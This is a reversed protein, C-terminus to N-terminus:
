DHQVAERLRHQKPAADSAQAAGLFAALGVVALIPFLLCLLYKSILWLYVPPMWLLVLAIVLAVRLIPKERPPFHALVLLLALMLPSLDHSFVHFGTVLSVVLAAAFMLDSTNKAKTGDLQDVQRWRWGIGAILFLSLAGVIVDVATPSLMHGLLLQVFGNLTAMGTAKGLPLNNPHGAIQVLLHIYSLIGRWGVAILSLIGLLSATCLFGTLFKWKRRFLFVLAFPLVVPFKFLGFGLYIGAPLDHGRKLAIYTIAYLLLLLISPQGQLLAIWLPPFLLWLALYGLPERPAPAYPRLVWPLALWLLVNFIGWVLYATKYSLAALPELLFAEFPPHEFILSKPHRFLPDRVAAQHKLDYLKAGDHHHLISAGVYTIAFGTGERFLSSSSALVAALLVIAGAFLMLGNENLGIKANHARFRPESIHAVDTPVQKEEYKWTFPV